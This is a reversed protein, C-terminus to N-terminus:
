ATARGPPAALLPTLATLWRDTMRRYGGDDPHLGDTTHATSIASMDAVSVRPGADAAIRPIAANLRTIGAARQAGVCVLLRAVVVRVTPSAALTADILRALRQPATRTRYKQVYDNTGIDLLVVDPRSRAMWPGIHAAIEDIRWGPHGEHDLDGGGRGSHESGVMDVTVGREALREVLRTRYGTRSTSGIGYTISDGLAMIRPRQPVPTPVVAPTSKKPTATTTPKAPATTGAPEATVSEAKKAPRTKKAPETKKAPKRPTRAKAPAPKVTATATADDAIPSGVAAGAGILTWAGASGALVLAVVVGILVSRRVAHSKEV